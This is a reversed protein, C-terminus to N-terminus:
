SRQPQVQRNPMPYNPFFHKGHIAFIRGVFIQPTVEPLFETDISIHIKKCEPCDFDIWMIKGDYHLDLEVTSIVREM